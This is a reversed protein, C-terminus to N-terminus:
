WGDSAAAAGDATAGGGCGVRAAGAAVGGGDAAGTVAAAGRGSPSPRTNALGNALFIAASFPISRRTQWKLLSNSHKNTYDTSCNADLFYHKRLRPPRRVTCQQHTQIEWSVLKYQLVASTIVNLKINLTQLKQVHQKCKQQLYTKIIHTASNLHNASIIVWVAVHRDTQWCNSHM